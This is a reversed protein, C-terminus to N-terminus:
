KFDSRVTVTDEIVYLTEGDQVYFFIERAYKELFVPDSIYKIVTSDESIKQKYFNKESELEEIKADLGKLDIYSNQDFFMLWCVFLAVM